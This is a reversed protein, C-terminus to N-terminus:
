TQSISRACIYVQGRPTESFHLEGSELRRYLTRLSVGSLAAAEEPPLMRVRRGCAPCHLEMDAMSCRLTVLEHTEVTTQTRRIRRM